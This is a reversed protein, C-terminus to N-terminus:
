VATHNSARASPTASPPRGHFDENGARGPEDAKIRGFGQPLGPVRDHAQVVEIRVVVQPKFFRAQPFAAEREGRGAALRHRGGSAITLRGIREDTQVDSVGLRQVPEEPAFAEPGDAMQRRLGTDTVGDFLRLGVDLAIQHAEEVNQFSAAAKRDGVQDIGTRTANVAQVVFERVALGVGHVMGDAQIRGGLLRVLQHAVDIAMQVTQARRTQTEECDIARPTARIHRRHLEELGNEVALRDLNVVM